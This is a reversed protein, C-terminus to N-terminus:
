VNHRFPWCWRVIDREADSATATRPLEECM